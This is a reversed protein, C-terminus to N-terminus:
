PGFYGALILCVSLWTMLIFLLMAAVLLKQWLALKKIAQFLKGMNSKSGEV